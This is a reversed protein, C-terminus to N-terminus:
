NDGNTKYGKILGLCVANNQRNRSCKKSCTVSQRPRVWINNKSKNCNETRKLFIRGCVVCVAKEVNKSLKIGRM